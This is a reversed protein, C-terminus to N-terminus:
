KSRKLEAAEQKLKEAEQEKFNAEELKRAQELLAKEYSIVREQLEQIAKENRHYTFINELDGIKISDAQNSAKIFRYKLDNDTLRGNEQRQNYNLVLSTILFLALGIMTLFVWSSKIDISIRHYLKKPASQTQEIQELRQMILEESEIVRKEINELDSTSIINEKVNENSLIVANSEVRKLMQKVEEFMISITSLDSM